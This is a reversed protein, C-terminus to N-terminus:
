IGEIKKLFDRAIYEYTFKSTPLKLHEYERIVDIAKELLEDKKLYSQCLSKITECSLNILLPMDDTKEAIGKDIFKLLEEIKQKTM